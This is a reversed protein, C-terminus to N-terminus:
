RVLSTRVAYGVETPRPLGEYPTGHVGIGEARRSAGIMRDM